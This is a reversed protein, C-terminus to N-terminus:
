LATAAQHEGCVIAIGSDTALGSLRDITHELMTRDGFLKLFQKPRDATSAPWFRTGSGGAMIAAFM